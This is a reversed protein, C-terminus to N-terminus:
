KGSEGFVGGRILVAMVYHEDMENDLSEGISYCDFLDYFNVDKAKRYARGKSTVSGYPEVAIPLKINNEVELPYWTDITRIANGIKQSHMAAGGNVQYLVKSKKTTSSKEKNLILEESPYIDQGKGLLAHASIELLLYKSEKNCETEASFVDAILEALEEVKSDTKDFNTISYEYGNFKWSRDETGLKATVVIELKEAGIRNRWLFRGNAINLAYRKALEKYGYKQVYKNGMELIKEYREPVNCASPKHVGSLFKLTFDLTLTDQNMLLSAADVVQLNANTVDQELNLLDKKGLRNSITGRVSKENVIIVKKNETNRDEWMSGYMYADSPVIKKEFALVTLKKEDKKAM